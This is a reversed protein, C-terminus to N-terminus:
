RELGRPRGSIGGLGKITLEKSSQNAESTGMPLDSEYILDDLSDNIQLRFILSTCWRETRCGRVESTACVGSTTQDSSFCIM